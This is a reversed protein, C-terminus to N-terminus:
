RRDTTPDYPPSIIRSPPYGRPTIEVSTNRKPTTDRKYYEVKPHTSEYKHYEDYTLNCGSMSLALLSLIVRELNINMKIM